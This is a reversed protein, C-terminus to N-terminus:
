PIAFKPLLNFKAFFIMMSFFNKKRNHGMECSLRFILELLAEQAGSPLSNKPEKVFGM